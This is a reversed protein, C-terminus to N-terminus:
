SCRELCENVCLKYAVKNISIVPSCATLCDRLSGPCSSSEDTDDLNYDVSAADINNHNKVEDSDDNAFKDGTVYDNNDYTV